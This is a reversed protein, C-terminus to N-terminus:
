KKDNFSFGIGVRAIGSIGGGLEVFGYLGRGVRLGLLTFDYMPVIIGDYYAIRASIGAGVTSYLHISKRRLWDFRVTAIASLTYMNDNFLKEGTLVNYKARWFGSFVAKGGVSLWPKVTYAYEGFLNYLTTSPGYDYRNSHIAESLTLIRPEIDDHTFIDNTLMVDSIIGPIGLGVRLDHKWRIAAQPKEIVEVDAGQDGMLADMAATTRQEIDKDTLVQAECHVSPATALLLLAVILRYMQKM